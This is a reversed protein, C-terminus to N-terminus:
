RLWIEQRRYLEVIRVATSAATSTAKRSAAQPDEPSDGPEALLASDDSTGRVVVAGFGLGAVVVDPAGDASGAHVSCSTVNGNPESRNNPTM